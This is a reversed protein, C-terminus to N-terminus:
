PQPLPRDSVHLPHLRIPVAATGGTRRLRVSVTVDSSTISREHYAQHNMKSSATESIYFCSIISPARKKM